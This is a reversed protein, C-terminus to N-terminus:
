PIFHTVEAVPEGNAILVFTIPQGWGGEKSVTVLHYPSTFAQHRFTAPAPNGFDAYVNVRDDQRSIQQVTVSYGGTHKLGQLVLVTFVREYDLQRLQGALEAPFIVDLGPKDVEDPNAIILLSPEEGGYGQGTYFGDSQAITEFPLQQEGPQCATAVFLLLGFLFTIKPNNMNMGGNPFDTFRGFTLM